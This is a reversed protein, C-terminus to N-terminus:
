ALSVVDTALSLREVRVVGEEVAADVLAAGTFFGLGPHGTLTMRDVTGTTGTAAFWCRVLWAALAADQVKVQPAPRYLGVKGTKELFGLEVILGLSYRGSRRVTEKEGFIECLKRLLQELKMEPQVRLMRSATVGVEFLFPYTASAMGWAIAHDRVADSSEHYIRIAEERLPEIEGPEVWIHRLYRMSKTISNTGTLEASVVETMREVWAEKSIGEGLLRMGEVIWTSRLRRNFTISKAAPRSM